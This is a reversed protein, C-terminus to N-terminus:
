YGNPDREDKSAIEIAKERYEFFLDSLKQALEVAIEERESNGVIYKAPGISKSVFATIANWGNLYSVNATNITGNDYLDLREYHKERIDNLLDRYTKRKQKEQFYPCEFYCKCESM